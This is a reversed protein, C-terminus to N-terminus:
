IRYSAIFWRRALGRSSRVGECAGSLRLGNPAALGCRM